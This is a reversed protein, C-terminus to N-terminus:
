ECGKGELLIKTGQVEFTAGLAKCIIQLKEKLGENTMRTTLTCKEFAESDYELDVGYAKEIAAFVLAVNADDFKMEKIEKESIIVQPDEQLQQKIRKSTRDYVVQQNPMVQYVPEAETKDEKYVAVKGTKVEVVITQETPRAKINFSTGLVKTLLEHAHVVFPHDPDKTIEFFAEGTLKVERHTTFSSEEFSIESNPQLVILSGDALRVPKV